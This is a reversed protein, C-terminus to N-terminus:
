EGVEGHGLVDGITDEIQGAGFAVPPDVVQEAGQADLVQGVAARGLDGAALGLAGSQGSGQDAPGLSEQQVFRKGREVLANGEREAAFEAAEDAVQVKGYEHDRVVEGFGTVDAVVDSHHVGALDQLDAVAWVHEMARAAGAHSAQESDGVDQFSLGHDRIILYHDLGGDAGQLSGLGVDGLACDLDGEAGVLDDQRPGVSRGVVTGVGEVDFDDVFGVEAVGTGEVRANGVCCDGGGGGNLDLDGGVGVPDHADGSATVPADVDWGLGDM